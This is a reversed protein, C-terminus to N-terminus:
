KNHKYLIYGLNYYIVSLDKKFKVSNIYDIRCKQVQEVNKENMCNLTIKDFVDSSSTLKGTVCKLMKADDKSECKAILDDFHGINNKLKYLNFNFIEENKNFLNEETSVTYEDLLSIYNDELDKKNNNDKLGADVYGQNIYYTSILNYKAWTLREDSKFDLSFTKSQNYSENITKESRKELNDNMSSYIELAKKENNKPVVTGLESNVDIVKQPIHSDDAIANQTLISLLIFLTKKM